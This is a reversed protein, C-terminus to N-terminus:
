DKSNPEVIVREVKTVPVGGEHELTSKDQWNHNNKLDFICITKDYMGLMAKSVKDREIRAVAKKIADSYQNDEDDYQGTSYVHLTDRSIGLFSALGSVTVPESISLEAGGVIRTIPNDKCDQYYADIGDQLEKITQFSRPRGGPDKDSM